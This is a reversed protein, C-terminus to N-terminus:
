HLTVYDIIFVTRYPVRLYCILSVLITIFGSLPPKIHRDSANAFLLLVGTFM